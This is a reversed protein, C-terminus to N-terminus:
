FKGFRKALKRLKKQSLGLGGKQIKQLDLNEMDKGKKVFSKLLNYQSLLERVNSTPIGSGKAIRAIRSTQKEIIEPNEREKKTMSQIMFGFRKVKDEQGELMGEPIKEKAKGLGPILELLKDFTGINEMNKLQKYFDNMTFKGEKLREETEKIKDKDIVLQVKELLTQLDGLGLIRSIFTEPNFTEIDQIHEGTTIFFVPAKTENCATLSGGGKASSDMRTIIVGNIKLAEQFEEALKKAAQGIDAPMVLITYDPSIKKGLEKIEKVLESDLTHRGATDILVLDYKKFEDKFQNYIKEPNKEKKNIFISLNNKEALQELQDSAAPRHVDLGLMCTKFGRKNYYNALKATTTTNHVIFGDAIFSHNDEVTLDYVVNKDNKIKKIERIPSWIVNSESILELDILLEDINSQKIQQLYSNGKETLIIKNEKSCIIEQNKLFYILGNIVANSYIKYIDENNLISNLIKFFRGTKQIKYYNILKKLHERSIFGSEEYRGYSYVANNQIEGISFGLKERVEKLIKGIPLMNQNGCGQILGILNYNNVRKQKREILYGIKNAYIEAFKSKIVLRWYPINNIIKKSIISVIGFRNLLLNMQQILINSESTLEISRNKSPHSDCDFYARIFSRIVENNSLLIEEPIKLNKGKKGPKLNFISLLTVLTSSSLILKNMARTRTDRKISLELNFLSKSLYKIRKIIETDETVIEVYNKGIHGDGMLYGLFEAFESNLFLPIIIREQSKYSKTKILNYKKLDVLEIPIKGEKLDKTLQCYSLKMRLKKHIEKILLNKEALIGKVEEKDLYVLLELNKIKNSINVLSGKIEIEKPLAIFDNETIKDARIQTIHGNRLAFFPHEPTVKISFDNGNDAKIEILEKKNLRWLYTAKTNEIKATVPNFSPVFLNANSIDIIKGDKLEEEKFDKKYKEYLDEIKIINGDSLQINSEPHVCKGCGYLGLLMIKIPEKKKEKRIELEKKEGGLIELLKDHLTKIIQEKKEVGKIKEDIAKQRIENSLEKVLSVNVDAEILARQLDKIISDILKKDVFIASAIKDTVKKLANSLKEFM